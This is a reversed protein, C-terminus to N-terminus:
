TLKALLTIDSIRSHRIFLVELETLNSLPSLDLSSSSSSITNNWNGGVFLGTLNSAFELGTLDTIERQGADLDKLELMQQPTITSGAPLGLTEEIASRLNPDPFDVIQASVAQPILLTAAVAFVLFCRSVHFTFRSLRPSKM